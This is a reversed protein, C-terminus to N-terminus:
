PRRRKRAFLWSDRLMYIRGDSTFALTQRFDGLDGPYGIFHGREPVVLDKAKTPKCYRFRYWGESDDTDWGDDGASLANGGGHLQGVIFGKVSGQREGPEFHLRPPYANELLFFARTETVSDFKRVTDPGMKGVISSWKPM